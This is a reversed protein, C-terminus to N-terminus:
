NIRKKLDNILKIKEIRKLVFIENHHEKKVCKKAEKVNKFFHTLGNIKIAAIM